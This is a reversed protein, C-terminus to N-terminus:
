YQQCSVLIKVKLAGIVVAASAMWLYKKMTKWLFYSMINWTFGLEALRLIWM